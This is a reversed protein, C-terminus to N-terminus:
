VLNLSSLHWVYNNLGWGPFLLRMWWARQQSGTVEAPNPPVWMQVERMVTQGKAEPKWMKWLIHAATNIFWKITSVTDLLRGQREKASGVETKIRQPEVNKERRDNGTKTQVLM